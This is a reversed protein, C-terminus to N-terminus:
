NIYHQINNMAELYYVIVVFNLMIVVSTAIVLLYVLNSRQENAIMKNTEREKRITQLLLDIQTRLESTTLDDLKLLILALEQGTQTNISDSFFSTAEDQRGLNWLRIIKAFVPRIKDSNEYLSQLIYDSSYGQYVSTTALNKLYLILRYLEFDIEKKLLNTFNQELYSYVTRQGLITNRPYLIASIILLLVLVWKTLPAFKIVFSLLILIVIIVVLLGHALRYHIAIKSIRTTYLNSTEEEKSFMEEYRLRLNNISNELYGRKIQTRRYLLYVALLALLTIVSLYPISSNISFM